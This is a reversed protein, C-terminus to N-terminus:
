MCGFSKKGCETRGGLAVAFGGCPQESIRVSAGKGSRLGVKSREDHSVFVYPARMRLTVALARAATARTGGTNANDALVAKVDATAAESFICIIDPKM